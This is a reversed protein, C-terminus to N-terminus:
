ATFSVLILVLLVVIMAIGFWLRLVDVFLGAAYKAAKRLREISRNAADRHEHEWPAEEWLWVASNPRAQLVFGWAVLMSGVAAIGLSLHGAWEVVGQSFGDFIGAIGLLLGGSFPIYTDRNRRTWRLVPLAASTIIGGGVLVATTWSVNPTSHVRVAAIVGLVAILVAELFRVVLLKGLVDKNNPESEATGDKNM